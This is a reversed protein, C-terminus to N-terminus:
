EGMIHLDKTYKKLRDIYNDLQEISKQVLSKKKGKGHVFTINLEKSIKKLKKLLKKLHYIKIKNRYIVKIGFDIECKLIFDSINSMMKAINKNIAKKCVFTYRNASSEIKTGDIFLTDM